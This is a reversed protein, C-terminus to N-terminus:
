HQGQPTDHFFNYVLIDPNHNTVEGCILNLSEYMKRLVDNPVVSGVKIFGRKLLVRRIEQIPTQKMLHTQTTIHNRLTKNSVLVSVTPRTKSKGTKYTRRITRRRKPIKYITRPKTPNRQKENRLLASVQALDTKPNQNLVFPHMPQPPEQVPVTDTQTRLGGGDQIITQINPVSPTLTPMARQTQRRWNRYTPLMGGYKLCGYQPQPLPPLPKITFVDAPDGPVFSDVISEVNGTPYFALTQPEIPHRQKLTQVRTQKQEVDKALNDFFRLSEDFEKNFADPDTQIQIPSEPTHAGTDEKKSKLNRIYQLIHNKKLTKNKPLIPKIHVKENPASRRKRTGGGSGYSLLDQHIQITKSM